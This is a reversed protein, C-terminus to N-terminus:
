GFFAINRSSPHCFSGELQILMFYFNDQFHAYDLALWMRTM